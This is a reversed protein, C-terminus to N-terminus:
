RWRRAIVRGRGRAPDWRTVHAIRQGLATTWLIRRPGPVRALTRVRGGSVARLRLYSTSGAQEVWLIRGAALSPNVQLGSVSSAVLRGRGLRSVTTLRLESRRGAAVHWAILGDRLAPRGLDTGRGVATVSRRSGTRLHALELRQGARTIRVYALRPWDLAPKALPGDVRAVEEGTRWLVVRVGADDVYALREGDLAPARADEYRVPARGPARVVVASGDADLVGVAVTRAWAAPDYTGRLGSDQALAPAAAAGLGAAVVAAAALPRLM